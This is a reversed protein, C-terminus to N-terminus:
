VKYDVVTHTQAYAVNSTYCNSVPFRELKQFMHAQNETQKQKKKWQINRVLAITTEYKM